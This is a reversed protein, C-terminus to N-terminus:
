PRASAPSTPDSARERHTKRAHLLFVLDLAALGFVGAIALVPAWLGLPLKLAGAAVIRISVVWLVVWVGCQFMLRAVDFRSLGQADKRRGLRFVVYSAVLLLPFAAWEVMVM